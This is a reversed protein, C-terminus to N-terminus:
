ARAMAVGEEATPAYGDASLRQGLDPVFDFAQGGVLIRTREGNPTQRVGNVLDRAKLLNFPMTVSILVLDPPEERCFALFDETPTDCGLQRVRWGDVALADALMSAGIGHHEDPVTAVIARGRTRAQELVLRYWYTLVRHAVGTALRERAVSLIGSEWRRGVEHLAPTLAGFYFDLLAPASEIHLDVLRIVDDADGRLMLELFEDFYPEWRKSIGLPPPGWIRAKALHADHRAEFWEYIEALPTSFRVPLCQALAYKWAAFEALFYEERFGRALYSRYVWPVVGELLSPEGLRMVVVMMKHHNLHNEAMVSTTNKGVLQERDRRGALRLTVEAVLRAGNAEYSDVAADPIPLKM